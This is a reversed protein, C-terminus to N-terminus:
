VARAELRLEVSRWISLALPFSPGQGPLPPPALGLTSEFTLIGDFPSVMRGRLCHSVENYTNQM